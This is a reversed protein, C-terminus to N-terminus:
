RRGLFPIVRDDIRAVVLNLECMSFWAQDLLTQRSATARPIPAPPFRISHSGLDEVHAVLHQELRELDRFVIAVLDDRTCFLRLKIITGCSPV